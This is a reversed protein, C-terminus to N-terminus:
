LNLRPDGAIDHQTFHIRRSFAQGPDIMFREDPDGVLQLGKGRLYHAAAQASKVKFSLCYIGQIDRQHQALACNVSTPCMAEVLVGGVFFSACDAPEDLLRRRSV